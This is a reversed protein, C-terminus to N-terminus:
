DALIEALMRIVEIGTLVEPGGALVDLLNYLVLKDVNEAAGAFSGKELSIIRRERTIVPAANKIGSINKRPHLVPFSPPRSASRKRSFSAFLKQFIGCSDGTRPAHERKYISVL